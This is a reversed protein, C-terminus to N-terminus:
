ADQCRGGAESQWCGSVWCVCVVKQAGDIALAFANDGASCVSLVRDDEGVNLAESLIAPDEWVQAYSIRQGLAAATDSTGSM